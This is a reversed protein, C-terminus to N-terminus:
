LLNEPVMSVPFGYVIENEDGSDMAQQMKTLLSEFQEEISETVIYETIEAKLRDEQSDSYTIVKEIKRNIGKASDFLTEIQM